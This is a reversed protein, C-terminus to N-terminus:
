PAELKVMFRSPCHEPDRELCPLVAVLASVEEFGSGKVDVNPLEEILRSMLAHNEQNNLKKSTEIYKEVFNPLDNPVSAVVSDM